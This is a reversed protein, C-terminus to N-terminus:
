CQHNSMLKCVVQEMHMARSGKVLVTVDQSIANQLREILEDISAFYEAGSGFKDVASRSLSGTAFLKDVGSHRAAIGAQSHMEEEDIGLEGMDGLVLWHQGNFHRLVELAAILSAPNANYTDDIIRSSNLGSKIELRGKVPRIKELGQKIIELDIGLAVACAAAALANMVNHLGPLPLTIKTMGSPTVLIFGSQGSVATQQLSQAYVDAPNSIGFRLQRINSIKGEWFSAYDDDANIIACGQADLGDYIEAKAQAVGDVSGFGELHAPACQTILAITPRAMNSLLAIEGPHNAGMEVVAYAHEDGMGFLTLPVGIDNNLNGRTAHVPAVQKLISVLMEKVTTKGNSGTIAILPINFENRWLGALKGMARRTDAVILLPLKSECDREVMAAAAGREMASELFDHGDFHIGKIAIFLENQELTRSDTSCGKFEVNEGQLAAGLSKAAMSLNMTIM